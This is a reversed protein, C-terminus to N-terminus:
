PRKQAATQQSVRFLWGDAGVIVSGDPGIAPSSYIADGVLPLDQELSGSRPAAKGALQGNGLYIQWSLRQQKLDWAYLYGDHRPLLLQDGNVAASPWHHRAPQGVQAVASLRGSTRDLMLLDQGLPAALLLQDQWLVPSSRLNVHGARLSQPDSAWWQLAGTQADLALLAPQPYRTNRAFSLYVRGDALTPAAYFAVPFRDSRRSWEPYAHNIRQLWRVEGALNLSYVEGYTGAVILQQGDWAPAARFSGPAELKWRIQGTQLDLALVEGAEGGAIVQDGVILPQYFQAHVEDRHYTWRLSGDSPSLAGIVPMSDSSRYPGSDKYATFILTGASDPGAPSWALGNVDAPLPTFWREKGSEFDLAYVGAGRAQEPIQTYREREYDQMEGDARNWVRGSSGVFVQQGVILPNNQAGLLGVWSRWKIAPQSIIPRGNVAGSRAPTHQFMPWAAATSEAQAALPLGSHVFGAMLIAGWLGCQWLIRKTKM